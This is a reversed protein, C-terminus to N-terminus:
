SEEKATTRIPSWKRQLVKSVQDVIAEMRQLRLEKSEDTYYFDSNPQHAKVFVDGTSTVGLVEDEDDDEPSPNSQLKVGFMKWDCGRLEALSVISSDKLSGCYVFYKMQLCKKVLSLIVSDCGTLGDGFDQFKTLTRAYSASLHELIHSPYRSCKSFTVSALPIESNFFQILEHSAVTNGITVDVKLTRHKTVLKKWTSTSIHVPTANSSQILLLSLHNFWKLNCLEMLLDESILDAHLGLSTLQVFHRVTQVVEDPLPLTTNRPFWTEPGADRDFLRLKELNAIQGNETMCCLINYGKHDPYIPWSTVALSKLRFASSVLSGIVRLDSVSPPKRKSVLNIPDGIELTLSELRCNKALQIIVEECSKKIERVYGVIILEVKQFFAGFAQIMSTYHEPIIVGHSLRARPHRSEDLDGLLVIRVTHWLSPHHFIGNLRRCTRSVRNRDGLELWSMVKVWVIDPLGSFDALLAM